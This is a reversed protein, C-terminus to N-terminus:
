ICIPLFSIMMFALNDSFNRTELFIYRNCNHGIEHKLSGQLNHCWLYCHHLTLKSSVCIKQGGAVEPHYGAICQCRHEFQATLTCIANETDCQNYTNGM